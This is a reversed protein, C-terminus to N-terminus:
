NRTWQLHHLSCLFNLKNPKKLNFAFLVSNNRHNMWWGDTYTFFQTTYPCSPHYVNESSSAWSAWTSFPTPFHISVSASIFQFQEDGNSAGSPLWYYMCLQWLETLIISRTERLKTKCSSFGKLPNCIPIPHKRTLTTTKWKMQSLM